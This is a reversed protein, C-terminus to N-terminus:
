EIETARLLAFFIACLLVICIARLLAVHMAHLLAVHMAHLLVVVFARNRAFFVILYDLLLEICSVYNRVIAFSQNCAILCFSLLVFPCRNLFVIVCFFLLVFSCYCLPLFSM